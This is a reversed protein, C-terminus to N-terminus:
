INTNDVVLHLTITAGKCGDQNTTENSMELTGGDGALVGLTGSAAIEQELTAGSYTFWSAECDGVAGVAKTIEVGNVHESEDAVVDGIKVPTADSLNEVDFTVDVSSDPYLSNSTDADDDDAFAVDLIDIGADSGAFADGSGTGGATWYALAIGALAMTAVLGIAVTMKRGFKSM